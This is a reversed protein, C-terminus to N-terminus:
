VFTLRNCLLEEKTKIRTFLTSKSFEIEKDDNLKIFRAVLRNLALIFLFKSRYIDQIETCKARSSIIGLPKAVVFIKSGTLRHLSFQNLAKANKSNKINQLFRELIWIYESYHKVCNM